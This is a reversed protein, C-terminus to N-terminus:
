YLPVSRRRRGCASVSRRVNVRFKSSRRSLFGEMGGQLSAVCRSVPNLLFARHTAATQSAVADLFARDNPLGYLILHGQRLSDRCISGLMRPSQGGVLATAFGWM